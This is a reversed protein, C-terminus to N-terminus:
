LLSGGGCSGHEHGTEQVQSDQPAAERGAFACLVNLVVYFVSGWVIFVTEDCFTGVLV